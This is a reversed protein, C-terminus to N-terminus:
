WFSGWESPVTCITFCFARDRSENERKETAVDKISGMKYHTIFLVRVRLCHVTLIEQYNTNRLPPSDGHVSYANLVSCVAIQSNATSTHM